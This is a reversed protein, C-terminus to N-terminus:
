EDGDPRPEVKRKPVESDVRANDVRVGVDVSDISAPMTRSQFDDTPPSSATAYTRVPRLKSKVKRTAKEERHMKRTEEWSSAIANVVIDQAMLVVRNLLEKGTSSSPHKLIRKVVTLGEVIAQLAQKDFLLM